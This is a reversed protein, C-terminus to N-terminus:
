HCNKWARFILFVNTHIVGHTSGTQVLETQIQDTGPLKYTNFLQCVCNQWRNLVSHSVGLLDDKEENMLYTGTKYDKKFKGYLNVIPENKSDAESISIKQKM